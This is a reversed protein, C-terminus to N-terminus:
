GGNIDSYGLGVVMANVECFGIVRWGGNVVDIRIM